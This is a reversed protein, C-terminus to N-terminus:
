GPHDTALEASYLLWFLRSFHAVSNTLDPSEALIQIAWFLYESGSKPRGLITSNSNHWRYGCSFKLNLFHSM